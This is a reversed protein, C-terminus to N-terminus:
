DQYQHPLVREVGTHSDHEEYFFRWALVEIRTTNDPWM